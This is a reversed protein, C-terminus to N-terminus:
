NHAFSRIGRCVVQHFVGIEIALKLGLPLFNELVFPDLGLLNTVVDSKFPRQCIPNDFVAGLPTLFPLRLLRRAVLAVSGRRSGKLRDPSTAFSHHSVANRDMSNTRGALGNSKKIGSGVMMRSAAANCRASARMAWSIASRFSDLMSTTSTPTCRPPTYKARRRALRSLPIQPWGTGTPLRSMAM